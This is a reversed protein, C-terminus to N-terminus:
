VEAQRLELFKEISRHTAGWDRHADTIELKPLACREYLARNLDAKLQLYAVMDDVRLMPRSEFLPRRNIREMVSMWAQLRQIKMQGFHTRVNTVALNIVVPRLPRLIPAIKAQYSHITDLSGNFDYLLIAGNQWFVSEVIAVGPRGAQDQVLQGWEGLLYREDDAPSTKPARAVSVPNDPSDELYLKSAIDLAGMREALYRATSTKGAGQLGEILILKTDIM